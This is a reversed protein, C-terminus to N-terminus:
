MNQSNAKTLEIWNISGSIPDCFRNLFEHTLLNEINAREQLFQDNHQKANFGLPEIIDTYLNENGSILYWFSQGVVKKYGRTYSTKTKGYCIGLVAEAQNTQGSQKLRAVATTLDRSLQAQQSSNGWRPGSKISILYHIHNDIFELDVGQATSKHGNCTQESIFIALDELFGGFSKEESSSLFAQLNQEVYEAATLVNKARFMYPNKSILSNLKLGKIGNIRNTHFITIKENVYNRLLNMDLSKM